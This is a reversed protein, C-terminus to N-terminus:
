RMRKRVNPSNPDPEPFVVDRYIVSLPIPCAVSKLDIIDSLDNFEYNMWFGDGHKVFQSIHPRHQAILLYETFTEISKYYTFKDGRDFAETSGSLVEVILQPNILMEVEGIRELKPEGCLASLDPYRYPEYAPVKIRM